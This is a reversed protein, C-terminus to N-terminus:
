YYCDNRGSNKRNFQEITGAIYCEDIAGKVNPRVLDKLGLLGVFEFEFDHQQEPLDVKWGERSHFFLNSKSFLFFTM